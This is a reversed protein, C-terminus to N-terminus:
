RGCVFNRFPDHKRLSTDLIRDMPLPPRLTCKGLCVGAQCISGLCIGGGRCVGGQLGVGAQCVAGPLCVGEQCASVRRPLCGGSPLCGGGRWASGELLSGSCRVTHMRFSHIRTRFSAQSEKMM